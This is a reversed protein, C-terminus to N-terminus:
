NGQTPQGGLAQKPGEPYMREALTKAANQGAPQGAVHTGETLAKAAKWLTKIVEPNNDAGTVTLAERVGPTGFTDLFKAVLAKTQPLKEGGIEADLFVKSTWERRTENWAKQGAEETAKITDQVNQVYMDVLKQAGEQPVKLEAFLTQVAALGEPQLEVGEPLKFPQYTIPAEAAV